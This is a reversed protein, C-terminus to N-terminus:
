EKSAFPNPYIADSNVTNNALPDGQSPTSDVSRPNDNRFYKRTHILNLVGTALFVISFIITLVMGPTWISKSSMSYM